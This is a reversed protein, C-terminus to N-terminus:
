ARGDDPCQYMPLSIVPSQLGDASSGSSQYSSVLLDGYRIAGGFIGKVEDQDIEQNVPLDDIKIRAM